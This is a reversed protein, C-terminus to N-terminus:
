HYLWWEVAEKGGFIWLTAAMALYPVFAIRRPWERRRILYVGVSALVGIVCGFMLAFLAGQWGLFAGIAALLKVDGLGMAERPVVIEGAVVELNTVSEPDFHEEGVTLRIPTLRVTQNEWTREGMRVSKAQLEIADSKRCFLEEFLVERDPLKLGHEGFAVRSDPELVWKEQGLFVKAGRLVAYLVGAGIVMGWFSRELAQAPKIARHLGPALFSLVLGSAMGGLTIEDPIILHEFDIFAGAVFGALLLCYCLAVLPAQHGFTLWAGLFASGTLLEVFFYRFPIPASCNACRGRLGLWNILPLNLYWTARSHCRPCQLVSWGLSESRPMRYICVNLFSGVGCGLIFITVSWFHFPIAAWTEANIANSGM